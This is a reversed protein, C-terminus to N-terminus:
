AKGVSNNIVDLRGSMIIHYDKHETGLKKFIELVTDQNAGTVLAIAKFCKPDM